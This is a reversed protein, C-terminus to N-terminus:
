ETGFIWLLGTESFALGDDDVFRAVEVWTNLPEIPKDHLFGFDVNGDPDEEVYLYERIVAADRLYTLEGYGIADNYGAFVFEDEKAFTLWTAAPTSGLKGTVDEFTTWCDNSYVYLAVGRWQANEDCSLPVVDSLAVETPALLEPAGFWAAFRAMADSLPTRMRFYSPNM